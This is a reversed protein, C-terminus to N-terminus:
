DIKKGEKKDMESQIHEVLEKDLEKNSKKFSVSRSGFIFSKDMPTSNIIIEYLVKTREKTVQEEFKIVSDYFQSIFDEIIDFESKGVLKSIKGLKALSDKFVKATSYIRKDRESEVNSM